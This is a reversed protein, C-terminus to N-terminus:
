DQRMRYGFGQVTEITGAAKGLKHRLRRVHTDVTRANILTEYGWAGTLLMERSHLRGPRKMLMTLLRFEATTLSLVRCIQLTFPVVELCVM